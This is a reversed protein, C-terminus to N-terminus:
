VDMRRTLHFEVGEQRAFWSNTIKWEAKPDVLQIDYRLFLSPLLKYIELLSINKGICTRPGMGFTMTARTMRQLRADWGARSEGKKQLWREPVFRDPEEGFIRADRHVVWPSAGVITGEPLFAGSELRFGGEPVVRELLMGVAPHLRLAEKVVADFYALEQSQRWTACEGLRGGARAGGLERMLREYCRPHKVVYYIVARLSIATTDSGAFVNTVVYSFVQKDDVVAPHTEKAEFFRAMFDRRPKEVGKERELLREDLRARAFRAVPGTAANAGLLLQRLPNKILLHDLWPLQGVLANYDMTANLDRIINSMDRGTSLFGLDHSCTLEGIVDFAYFQLWDFLPCIPPPRDHSSTNTTTAFLADLRSFMLAIMNDVFPEFDTLTTMSYANAIPRKINAHWQESLSTFLTVTPKGNAMQQQVAYFKSKYFGSNIGYVVKIDNMNKISVVNPGLRVNDGYKHHLANLTLDNRGKWVDYFRWLNTFKALFPGPITRVGPTFYNLIFHAVVAALAAIWLYQGILSSFSQLIM